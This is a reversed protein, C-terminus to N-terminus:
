SGKIQSCPKGDLLCVGEVSKLTGLHICPSYEDGHRCGDRSKMPVAKVDKTKELMQRAFIPAENLEQYDPVAIYKIGPMLMEYVKLM